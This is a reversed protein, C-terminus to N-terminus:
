QPNTGDPMSNLHLVEASILKDTEEILIKMRKLLERRQAPNQCVDLNDTLEEFRQRLQQLPHLYPM